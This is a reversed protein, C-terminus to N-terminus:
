SYILMIAYSKRIKIDKLNSNNKHLSDQSNYINESLIHNISNHVNLFCSHSKKIKINSKNLINKDSGITPENFISTTSTNENFYKNFWLKSYFQKIKSQGENNKEQYFTFIGDNIIDM